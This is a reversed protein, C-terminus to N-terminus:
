SQIGPVSPTMAPASAIAVPADGPPFPTVPLAATVTFGGGPRIGAELTGNVSAARERMGRIGNGEPVDSPHPGNALPPALDAAPGDDAVTITLVDPAYHLRV